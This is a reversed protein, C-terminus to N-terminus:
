HFKLESNQANFKSIKTSADPGQPGLEIVMWNQYTFKTHLVLLHYASVMTENIKTKHSLKLQQHTLPSPLLLFYLM